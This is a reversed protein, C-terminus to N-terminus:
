RMMTALCYERWSSFTALLRRHLFIIAIESSEREREREGVRYSIDWVNNKKGKNQYIEVRYQKVLLLDRVFSEFNPRSLVVSPLKNAGTFLVLVYMYVSILVPTPSCPDFHLEGSGLYKIVSNTHYLDKAALLADEGHVTYYDQLHSLLCLLYYFLCHWM